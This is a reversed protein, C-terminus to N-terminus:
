VVQVTAMIKKMDFLIGIKINPGIKTRTIAVGTEDDKEGADPTEAM